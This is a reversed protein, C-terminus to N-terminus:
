QERYRQLLAPKQLISIASNFAAPLVIVPDASHSVSLLQYHIDLSAGSIKGPM